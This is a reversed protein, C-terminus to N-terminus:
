PKSAPTWVAWGQQGDPLNASRPHPPPPQSNHSDLHNRTAQPHSGGPWSGALPNPEPRGELPAAQMKAGLGTWWARLALCCSHSRGKLLPMWPPPWPGWLGGSLGRCSPARCDRCRPQPSSGPPEPKTAEPSLPSPGRAQGCRWVQARAALFRACSHTGSLQPLM